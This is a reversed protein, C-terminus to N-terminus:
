EENTADDGDKETQTNINQTINKLRELNFSFRDGEKKTGHINGESRYSNNKKNRYLNVYKEFLSKFDFVNQNVNNTFGNTIEEEKIALDTIYEISKSTSAILIYKGSAKVLHIRKDAGLSVTEIISLHRGKMAKSTKAALYRTTVYTIFLITGFGAFFM